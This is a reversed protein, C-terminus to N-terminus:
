ATTSMDDDDMTSHMYLAILLITGVRAASVVNTYVGWVMIILFAILKNM